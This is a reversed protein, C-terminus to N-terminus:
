RADWEKKHSASIDNDPLFPIEEVKKGENMEYMNECIFRSKMYIM